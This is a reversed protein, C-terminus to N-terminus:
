MEALGKPMIDNFLKSELFNDLWKQLNNYPSQYFWTKDVHAFQRIFPFIAVDGYSIKNGFLYTNESLKEELIKLFEEGKSRCSELSETQQKTFYKYKDLSEKFGNDNITILKEIETLIKKDKSLWGDPDNVSLAFAIIDRSEDITKENNILLVPVQGKPSLKLMSAPKDKLSVEHIKVKIGSYKLAMRARM